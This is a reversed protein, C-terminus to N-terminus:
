SEHAGSPAFRGLDAPVLVHFYQSLSGVSIMTYTSLGACFRDQENHLRQTITSGDTIEQLGVQLLASIPSAPLSHQRSHTGADKHSVQPTARWGM